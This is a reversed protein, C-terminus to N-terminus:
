LSSCKKQVVSCATINGTKKWDIVSSTRLAMTPNPEDCLGRPFYVTSLVLIETDPKEDPAAM